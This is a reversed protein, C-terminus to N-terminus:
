RSPSSVASQHKPASSRTAASAEEGNSTDVFLERLRFKRIKGSATTPFESVVRFHTPIKYKAIKGDLRLRLQQETLHVNDDLRVFAVIVEGYYADPVGVVAVDSVESIHQRVASEIDLPAINEGGRIIMDKARGTVTVYGQSDLFGIDGSRLWNEDDIAHATAAEDDQYGAMLGWGRFRIEGIEGMSRRRQGGIEVVDVEVGPLPRGVSSLAREIPDSPGTQIAPGAFETMGYTNAIGVGYTEIWHRAIQEPVLSGGTLLTRLTTFKSANDSAYKALSIMMTPVALVATAHEADIAAALEAPKFTPQFLQTGRAALTAAMATVTGGVHFFPMAHLYRCGDELEARHATCRGGNALSSSRLRVGKPSGTTGSTFQIQIVDSPRSSALAQEREASNTHQARARFAQWDMEANGAPEAGISIVFQLDPLSGRLPTSTTLDIHATASDTFCIQAHSQALVLAIEDAAFAPNVPAIAAGIQACALILQVFEPRNAAYHAIVDGRRIGMSVLARATIDVDAELQAYTWRQATGGQPLYVMAERDPVARAADALLDDLGLDASVDVQSDQCSWYATVGEFTM